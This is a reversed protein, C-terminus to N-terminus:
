RSVIFPNYFSIKMFKQEDEHYGYLSRFLFALITVKEDFSNTGILPSHISHLTRWISVWVTQWYFEISSLWVILNWQIRYCLCDFECLKGTACLWVKLSTRTPKAMSCRCNFVQIYNMSLHHEVKNLNKPYHEVPNSQTRIQKISNL